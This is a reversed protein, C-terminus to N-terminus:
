GAAATGGSSMSASPAACAAATAMIASAASDAPAPDASSAVSRLSSAPAGSDQSPACAKQQQLHHTAKFTVDTPQILQASASSDDMHALVSVEAVNAQVMIHQNFMLHRMSELDFM